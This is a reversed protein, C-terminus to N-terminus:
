LSNWNATYCYQLVLRGYGQGVSNSVPPGYSFGPDTMPKPALNMQPPSFSTPPLPTTSAYNTSDLWQASFGKGRELPQSPLYFAKSTHSGMAQINNQKLSQHRKALIPHQRLSSYSSSDSPSYQLPRSPPPDSHLPFSNPLAPVSAISQTNLLLSSPKSDTEKQKWSSHGDTLELPPQQNTESECSPSAYKTGHFEQMVKGQSFDSWNNYSHPSHLMSPQSHSAKQSQNGTSPPQYRKALIPHKRINPHPTYELPSYQMPMYKEPVKDLTISNQLPPVGSPLSEPNLLLPTIQNGAETEENQQELLPAQESTKSENSPLVDKKEKVQSSDTLEIYGHPFQQSTAWGAAIGYSNQGNSLSKHRRALIPHKRLNASYPAYELPSYQLPMSPTPATDLPFSAPVPLMTASM